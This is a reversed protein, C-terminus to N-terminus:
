KKNEFKKWFVHLPPAIAIAMPRHLWPWGLCLKWITLWWYIFGNWETKRKRQEKTEDLFSFNWELLICACIRHLFRTVFNLAHSACISTYLIWSIGIAHSQSGPEDSRDCRLLKIRCLCHVMVVTWYCLSAMVFPFDSTQPDSREFPFM